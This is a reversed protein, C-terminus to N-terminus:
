AIAQEAFQVAELGDIPSAEAGVDSVFGPNEIFLHGGVIIHADQNGIHKRVIDIGEALKPLAVESSCTLGVVSARSSMVIAKIQELKGPFEVQVNWNARRFFEAVMCLGFIHQEGPPLIFLANASSRVPKPPADDLHSLNRLVDHLLLLGLTVDSFSCVDEEWLEGLYRASPTLLYLCIAEDSYGEVSMREIFGAVAPANNELLLTSFSKVTFTDFKKAPDVSPAPWALAADSPTLHDSHYSKVLNPIVSEEIMEVVQSRRELLAITVSTDDETQMNNLPEAIATAVTSYWKANILQRVGAM